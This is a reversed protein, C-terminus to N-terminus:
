PKTVHFVMLGDGIFSDTFFLCRSCSIKVMAFGLVSVSVSANQNWAFSVDFGGPNLRCGSCQEWLLRCCLLAMACQM